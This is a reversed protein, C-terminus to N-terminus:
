RQIKRILETWKWRIDKLFDAAVVEDTFEQMTYDSARTLAGTEARKLVNRIFEDLEHLYEEATERSIKGKEAGREALRFSVQLMFLVTVDDLGDARLPYWLIRKWCDETMDSKLFDAAKSYARLVAKGFKKQEPFQSLYEKRWADETERPIHYSDYEQRTGDIDMYFRNGNYNLFLEKARKIRTKM